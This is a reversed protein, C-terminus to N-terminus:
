EQEKTKLDHLLEQPIYKGKTITKYHDYDATGCMGDEEVQAAQDLCYGLLVSLLLRTASNSLLSYGVAMLIIGAYIPHRIVNYVGTTIVLNTTHQQTRETVAAVLLSAGVVGLVSGLLGVHIWPLGGLLLSVGVLASGAYWPAVPDDKDLGFGINLPMKTQTQVTDDWKSWVVSAFDDLNTQFKPVNLTSPQTTQVVAEEAFAELELQNSTDDKTDFLATTTKSVVCLTSSSLPTSFAGITSPLIFFFLLALKM